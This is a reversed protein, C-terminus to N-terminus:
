RGAIIPLKVAAKLKAPWGTDGDGFPRGRQSAPGANASLVRRVVGIREAEVRQFQAEAKEILVPFGYASLRADTTELANLSRWLALKGQIGLALVELAELTGIGIVSGDDHLKLRSM